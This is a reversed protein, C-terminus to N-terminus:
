DGFDFFSMQGSEERDKKLKEISKKKKEEEKAIRKREEEELKARQEELFQEKAQQELSKKEEKTLTYTESETKVISKGDQIFHISWGFVEKDSIAICGRGKAKKSAESKIFNWVESLTIKKDKYLASLKNDRRFEELLFEGVIKIYESDIFEVEKALRDIPNMEYDLEIKIKEDKSSM